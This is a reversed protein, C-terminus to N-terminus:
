LVSSEVTCPLQKPPLIRWFEQAEERTVLKRYNTFVLDQNARHGMLLATAAPNEFAALHMTGCTHRFGDMLFRCGAAEM